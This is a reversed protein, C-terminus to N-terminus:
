INFPIRVPSNPNGLASISMKFVSYGKYFAPLVLSVAIDGAMAVLLAYWGTRILIGM